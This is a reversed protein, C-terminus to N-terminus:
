VRNRSLLLLLIILVLAGALIYILVKGTLPSSPNTSPAPPPTPVPPLPQPATKCCTNADNFLFTYNLSQDFNLNGNTCGPPFQNSFPIVPGVYWVNQTPNVQAKPTVTILSCVAVNPDSYIDTRNSCYTQTGLAYQLPNQPLCQMNGSISCPVNEFSKFYLSRVPIIQFTTKALGSKLSLTKLQNSKTKTDYNYVAFPAISPPNDNFSELMNNSLYLAEGPGIVGSRTENFPYLNWQCEPWWTPNGAHKDLNPLNYKLVSQDQTGSWAGLSMSNQGSITFYVTDKYNIPSTDLQYNPNKTNYDKAFSDCKIIQFKLANQISDSLIQGKNQPDTCLWKEMYACQVLNSAHQIMVKIFVEEQNQINAM